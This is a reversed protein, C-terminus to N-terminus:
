TMVTHMRAQIMSNKKQSVLFADQFAPQELLELFVHTFAKMKPVVTENWLMNDRKVPVINIMSDHPLTLCEVIAGRHVDLLQLYTQLQIIEYFPIKYFLRRIRNKIEIVLKRDDTIADIKGGVWLATGDVTGVQMKYFTDDPHANIGLTERVKLLAHHESATGYNTYLNRKVTADIVKKDEEPLDLRAVVKSVSDYRVAVDQSDTCTLTSSDVIDKILKSQEIMCQVRDAETTCGTRRLADRYTEPSMREWMAEMAEAPRKHRNCGICAAIQSAYLIVSQPRQLMHFIFVM